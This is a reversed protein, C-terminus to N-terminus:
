TDMKKYSTWDFVLYYIILLLNSNQM